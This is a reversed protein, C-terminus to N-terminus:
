ALLRTAGSCHYRYLPSSGTPSSSEGSPRSLPVGVAAPPAVNVTPTVSASNAPTVRCYEILTVAEGVGTMVLEPSGPPCTGTAYAACSRAAPPVAGYVQVTVSPLRGGPRLM